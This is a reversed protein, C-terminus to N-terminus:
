KPETERLHQEGAAVDGWQAGNEAHALIEEAPAYGTQEDVSKFLGANDLTELATIARESNDGDWGKRLWALAEIVDNSYAM